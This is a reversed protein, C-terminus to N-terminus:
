NNGGFTCSVWYNDDDPLMILKLDPLKVRIFDFAERLISMVLVLTPLFVFANTAPTESLISLCGSAMAKTNVATSEILLSNVVTRWDGVGSSSETVVNSSFTSSSISIFWPRSWLIPTLWAVISVTRRVVNFYLNDELNVPAPPPPHTRVNSGVQIDEESM